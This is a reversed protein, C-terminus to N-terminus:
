SKDVQLLHQGAAELRGWRVDFESSIVDILPAFYAGTRLALKLTPETLFTTQAGLGETEAVRQM